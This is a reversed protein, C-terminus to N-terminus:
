SETEEASSELALLESRMMARARMMTEDDLGLGELVRQIAQGVVRVELEATQVLREQIGADIAVKAVKALHAREIQRERVWHHHSGGPALDDDVSAEAVKSDLWHVAGASRRVEDLLAEWPTTNRLRAIAHGM